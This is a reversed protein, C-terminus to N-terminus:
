FGNFIRNSGNGFDIHLFDHHFSNKDNESVKLVKGPSGCCSNNPNLSVLLCWNM